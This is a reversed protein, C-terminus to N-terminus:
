EYKLARVPNSIAAKLIHYSITGMAIGFAALGGGIFILPNIGTSFAFNNLWNSLFYYTVPVAILFSIGILKAFDSSLIVLLQLIKAGLVKRIGIEKIRREMAISSLGFLGMSGILISLIAMISVVTGMQKDSKYMEQFHQDLFSYDLPYDPVLSAWIREVDAIGEEINEGKLKVSLESYTWETHIVMSLTNVKHHLSNFNFDKTVGVITGLSDNPYWSHGVKQGIPNEYPLEKAFSENIIFALGDDTAYDKSFKRGAVFEIGYVDFYDYGVLVNSPGLDLMGTDIKAKFGWQHFNNGLRQGSATVGTIHSSNLLQQKLVDFKENAVRDMDVLLIHDKNFGIDKNRMYNLQDLVVLTAVIMALALSFQTVILSSRFFSKKDNIDGGKLVIAPEFSALHISPYIGALLGLLLVILCIAGLALPNALFTLLSLTRETTNNLFPLALLDIILAVVLASFALLMSEVIFQWFLQKKNAGASKRVGVEKARKSARATSLNMFNVSAIVMIFIGVLTFIGLYDGNFKRYNQYDHEVNTSALHVDSLKQLYIKMYDEVDEQGSQEILYDRYGTAMEKTDAGPVLQLYTVLFNSGWQHNFDPDDKLITAMSVLADFQLHSNEPADAIVGTVEYSKDRMLLSKGVVDTSGFIKIALEETFVVTNPEDFVTKRDGSLLKYDFMSLFTSDVAVTNEAAIRKDNLVWVRKDWNWFRTYTLAEPFEDVFTPGMKPMSLAVNQTKTGPFSQVECLRYINEKEAHQQDFSKEDAIFLYIVLCAAIGIALSMINISAHFKHKAINRTAIKLYNSFMITSKSNISTKHRLAFPRLYNLAEFWYRIKATSHTHNALLLEYKELLDGEVEEWLEEKLFFSLIRNALVPPQGYKFEQNM